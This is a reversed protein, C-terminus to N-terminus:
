DEEEELPPLGRRQREEIIVQNLSKQEGGQQGAGFNFVVSRKEDSAGRAQFFKLVKDIAFKREDATGSTLQEELGELAKKLLTGMFKESEKFSESALRDAEDLVEKKTQLIRYVRSESLGLDKAMEKIDLGKSVLFALRRYKYGIRGKRRELPTAEIVAPLGEEREVM